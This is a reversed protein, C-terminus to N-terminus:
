PLTTFVPSCPVASFSHWFISLGVIPAVSGDWFSWDASTSTSRSYDTDEGDLYYLPLAGWMPSDAKDEQRSFGLTLLTNETLDAEVAGYFLGREKEYRDLYSNGDQYATVLRGRVAGSEILSGSLDADLRYTDWSGYSLGLSGRADETPRKRVFNVTASPNGVGSMLGNAGRLIEVREFLATDRNGKVNSYPLPLGIGDFQFNRIDFGRATYYTRDTEVREVTVGPASDLVDNVNNLGFDDMQARSIVSISQPTERLTMALGTSSTSPEAPAYREAQVAAEAEDSVQVTPIEHADQVADNDAAFSAMPLLALVTIASGLITNRLIM